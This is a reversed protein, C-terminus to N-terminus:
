MFNFSFDPYLDQINKNVLGLGGVIIYSILFNLEVSSNKLINYYSELLIKQKIEIDEKIFDNQLFNFVDKIQLNDPINHIYFEKTEYYLKDLDCHSIKLFEKYDIFISIDTLKQFVKLAESKINYKNDDLSEKINFIKLPINRNTIPHKTINYKKLYLITEKEFCYVNNDDKYLILHTYNNDYIYIKKNNEIKWILKRSIPDRDYISDLFNYKYPFIKDYSVKFKKYINGTPKIIRKTIPNINKNNNWELLYNINIM